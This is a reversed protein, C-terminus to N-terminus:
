KSFLEKLTDIVYFQDEDSMSPFLPITIAEEYYKVAEPIDDSTLGLTRYYPHYPIPIYHVQVGVGKCKLEEFLTSRSVPSSEPDLRLVYLHYSSISDASRHPTILPMSSLEADYIKALENRGQVYEKLRTLQSSGLAAHIDSMRYNWGLTQQEYYWAGDALGEMAESNRTIGHSRLMNLQEYIEDSNTTLAGGEATTVIKVPHFSFVCIDSYRCSGIPDGYYSAGIAHAADEIIKFDFSESLAKIKRMDCPLGAFHVPIVVKPLSNSKKARILKEELASMSMNYTQPDIDVFDVTAGCYLAANASAVFSIPSTWVADGEKVGLAVCALHLASTASNVAIANKCGSLATLAEEFAPVRPGQTLFDSKLVSVVADLDQQTIEQKGYPILKM